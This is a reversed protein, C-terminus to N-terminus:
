TTAHLQLTNRESGNKISYSYMMILKDMKTNITQAINRTKPHKTLLAVIFM